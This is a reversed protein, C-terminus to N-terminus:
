PKHDNKMMEYDLLVLPLDAKAEALEREVRMVVAGPTITTTPPRGARPRKRTMTTTTTTTVSEHHHDGGATILNKQHDLFITESREAMMLQLPHPSPVIVLPMETM